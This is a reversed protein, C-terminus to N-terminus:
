GKKHNSRWEWPAIAGPEVWLGRKFSRAERELAYLSSGKPAYKVYVWAMGRRIQESNADVGACTVRGITRGYRDRGLDNVRAEKAACLEALSQRSRKGFAQRSEPADISDLRVSVQTKNVLVTLTDGDSIKVVRGTFDALAAVPALALVAVLTVVARM